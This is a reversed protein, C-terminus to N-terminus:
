KEEVLTIFNELDERLAKELTEKKAQFLDGIFQKIDDNSLITPNNKIYELISKSESNTLYNSYEELELFSDHIKSINKPNIFSNIKEEKIAKWENLESRYSEFDVYYLIESKYFELDGISVKDLNNSDFWTNFEINEGYAMTANEIRKIIVNEQKDFAEKAYTIKLKIVKEETYEILKNIARKNQKYKEIKEYFAESVKSFCWVIIFASIAPIIFLRAISWIAPLWLDMSYFSELFSIKDTKKLEFIIKPDLFLFTYAFQWNTILWSVIFYFYMPSFIREKIVESIDKYSEKFIEKSEKMMKGM